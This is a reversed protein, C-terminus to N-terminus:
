APTLTVGGIMKEDREHEAHDLLDGHDRVADLRKRNCRGVYRTAGNEFLCARTGSAAYLETALVLAVLATVTGVLSLSDLGDAAGLAIIAAGVLGRIVLRNRKRCRTRPNERHVHCAAMVGMLMLSLGIGGCYFWRIGPGIVNESRVRYEESLHEANADACDDAVVRRALAGGSLVFAMIFPLHAMMWGFASLKARRMAHMALNNADFEFYLWNFFFCQILGMCGKGFFADIGNVTSQFLIAVVTYGFVLTVFAGTRETRHEINLAPMVQFTRNMRERTGPHLKGLLSHAMIFLTPGAIDIAMAPFIAILQYPWSIHISVIWLASGFSSIYAYVLMIPRVMKVLYAVMYLYLPMYLRAALYYGVLTGYTGGFADTINTTFGFLCVLLLLISMHAFVDENKFWSILISIDNWIKWSMTFIIVFKLLALGDASASALDGNVGIIGVYLLDIFLEFSQVEQKESARWLIGKYFYQRVVPVNFLKLPKYGTENGAISSTRSSGPPRSESEEDDDDYTKINADYGFKSFHADLSLGHSDIRDLENSLNDLTGRVTEFKTFLEGHENRLQEVHSEHHRHAEKLAEIHEPSGSIHIEYPEGSQSLQQELETIHHPTDVVHIRRGDPHIFNRLRAKTRGRHPGHSGSATSEGAM